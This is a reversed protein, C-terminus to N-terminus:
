QKAHKGRSRPRLDEPRHTYLVGILGTLAQYEGWTIGGQEGQEFHGITMGAPPTDYADRYVTYRVAGSELTRPGIDLLQTYPQRDTKAQMRLVIRGDEFIKGDNELLSGDYATRCYHEWHHELIVPEQPDLSFERILPSLYRSAALSHVVFVEGVPGGDVIPAGKESGSIIAAGDIELTGHEKLWVRSADFVGKIDQQTPFSDPTTMRSM